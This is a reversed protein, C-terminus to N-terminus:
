APRILMDSLPRRPSIAAEETRGLRVLMQVRGPAKVPYLSAFEDRLPAMQPFEQLVQSVPHMGLGQQTAALQARLYARGTTLWDHMTNDSSSLVLLAQTSDIVEGFSSLFRGQNAESQFNGANLFIRAALSNAGASQLNIGDGKARVEDESFRFWTLTEGYTNQDAVEVAMARKLISKWPALDDTVVEAHHAGKAANLVAAFASTDPMAGHHALRSTRRRTAAAFLPDLTLANANALRITATPRTGFFEKTVDGEPQLVIDAAYGFSPAALAVMELLTGHSMHVQRAPPDTWPLLRETDTYLKAETESVLEFRWPQTNHANPATIGWRLATIIPPEGPVPATAPTDRSTVFPGGCASAFAAATLTLGSGILFRRRKILTTM